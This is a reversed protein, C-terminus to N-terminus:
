KKLDATWNVVLTIAATPQGAEYAIVFRRGDATVDYSGNIFARYPRTEFLPQVIGIEFSSRRARMEAAM